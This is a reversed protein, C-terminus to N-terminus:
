QRVVRQHQGNLELLYLGAPLPRGAGDAGTWQVAGSGAAAAVVPVSAVLQGTLSYVRLLYRGPRAVEYSITTETSFPNPYPANLSIAAPAAAPKNAALATGFVRV